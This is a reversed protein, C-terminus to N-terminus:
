YRRKGASYDTRELPSDCHKTIPVPEFFPMMPRSDWKVVGCHRCAKRVLKGVETVSYTAPEIRKMKLREVIIDMRYSEWRQCNGCTLLVGATPHNRIYHGLPVGGQGDEMHGRM